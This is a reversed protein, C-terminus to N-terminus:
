RRLAGTELLEAAQAGRGGSLRVDLVPETRPPDQVRVPRVGLPRVQAGPGHVGADDDDRESAADLDDVTVDRLVREEDPGIDM